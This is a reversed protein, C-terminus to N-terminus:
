REKTSRILAIAHSSTSTRHSSRWGAFFCNDARGAAACFCSSACSTNATRRGAPTSPSPRLRGATTFFQMARRPGAVTRRGAAECAARSTMLRRHLPASPRVPRRSLVPTAPKLERETSRVIEGASCHLRRKGTISRARSGSISAFWESTNALATIRTDAAPILAMLAASVRWNFRLNHAACKLLEVTVRESHRRIPRFAHLQGGKVM